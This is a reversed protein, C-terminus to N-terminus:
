IRFGATGATEEPPTQALPNQTPQQSQGNSHDFEVGSSPIYKRIVNKAPYSKGTKVDTGEKEIGVQCKLRCGPLDQPNLKFRGTVLQGTCAEIKQQLFGLSEKYKKLKRQYDEESEQPKRPIVWNEWILRENYDGGEVQLTVKVMSAGTSAVTREADTIVMDYVGNPIPELSTPAIAEDFDFEFDTDMMDSM